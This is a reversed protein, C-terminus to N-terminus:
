PESKDIDELQEIVRRRSRVEDLLDGFTSSGSAAPELTQDAPPRARAPESRVPEVDGSCVALFLAVVLLSLATLLPCQRRSVQDRRMAHHGTAPYHWLKFNLAM